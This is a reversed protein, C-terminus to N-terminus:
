KWLDANKKVYLCGTKKLCKWGGNPYKYTVAGSRARTSETIRESPMVDSRRIYGRKYTSGAPYYVYLWPSSLHTIQVIDDKDIYSNYKKYPEASGRTSLAANTYVPITKSAAFFITHTYDVCPSAAASATLRFPSETIYSRATDAAPSGAAGPIPLFAMAFLTLLALLLSLTKKINKM